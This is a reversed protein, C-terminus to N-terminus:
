NETKGREADEKLLDGNEYETGIVTLEEHKVWYGLDGRMSSFGSLWEIYFGIDGHEGNYKGFKVVGVATSTDDLKCSVIDGEFFERKDVVCGEGVSEAVVDAIMTRYPFSWDIMEEFIIKAEHYEPRDDETFCVACNCHNIYAGYIWRKLDKSWGRYKIRM